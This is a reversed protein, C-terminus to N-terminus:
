PVRTRIGPQWCSYVFPQPLIYRTIMEREREGERKRDRGTHVFYWGWPRILMPLETLRERERERERDNSVERNVVGVIIVM